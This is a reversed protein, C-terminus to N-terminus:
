VHQSVSELLVPRLLRDCVVHDTVLRRMEDTEDTEDPWIQEHRGPLPATSYARVRAQRPQPAPPLASMKM